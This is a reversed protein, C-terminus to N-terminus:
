ARRSKHPILKYKKALLKMATFGLLFMPSILTLGFSDEEQTIVWLAWSGGIFIWTWVYFDKYLLYSIITGSFIGSILLLIPTMVNIMFERFKRIDICEQSCRARVICERCPWRM